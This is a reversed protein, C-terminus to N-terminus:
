IDSYMRLEQEYEQREWNSDDPYKSMLNDNYSEQEDFFDFLNIM